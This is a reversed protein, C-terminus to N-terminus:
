QEQPGFYKHWENKYGQYSQILGGGDPTGLALTVYPVIKYGLPAEWFYYVFVLLSAWLFTYLWLCVQFAVFGRYSLVARRQSRFFCFM